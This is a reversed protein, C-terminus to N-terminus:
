RVEGESSPGGRAAGLMARFEESDLFAANWTAVFKLGESLTQSQLRNLVEKTGRVAIAPNAAIESALKAVAFELQTEDEYLESVLGMRMAEAATFDRGSLAMLRTNGQGIISPLRNLSGMDAVIALRTERVSFIANSSALRIDCAAALDLGAGLCHGHIAAIYPKQADAIANMGRQMKLILKQLDERGNGSSAQFTNRHRGFVEKLDIGASFCKGKGLIVIANVQTDNELEDVVRPLDEWFSWNMANLKNPRNLYLFATRQDLNKQISFFPFSDM